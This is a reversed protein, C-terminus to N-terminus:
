NKIKSKSNLGSQSTKVIATLIRLISECEVILPEIEKSPRIRSDRLLRLWYHCERAEKSSISMKAIFDARSIGALAEEVNAGISTGARLVQGALEFEKQERLRRTLQVIRLAFAYTKERIVNNKM